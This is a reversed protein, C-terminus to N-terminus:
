DGNDCLVSCRTADDHNGVSVLGTVFFSELGAFGDVEGGAAVPAPAFTFLAAIGLFYGLDQDVAVSVTENVDDVLGPTGAMRAGLVAKETGGICFFREPEGNGFEAFLLLQPGHFKRHHFPKTFLVGEALM